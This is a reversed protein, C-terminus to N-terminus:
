AASTAALPKAAATTAASCSEPIADLPRPHAGDGCRAGGRAAVRQPVFGAPELFGPVDGARGRLERAPADDARADEAEADDDVARAVAADRREDVLAQMAARQERGAPEDVVAEDARIVAPAVPGVAADDVDRRLVAPAHRVRGVRKPLARERRALS